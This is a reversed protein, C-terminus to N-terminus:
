EPETYILDGNTDISFTGVKAPEGQKGKIAALFDAESGTNGADLWIQYASKGDNGKVHGLNKTAM